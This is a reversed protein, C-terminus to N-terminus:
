IIFTEKQKTPITIVFKSGEDVVGEAVITGGHREVIKRCIALGMGSGEYEDRGHLRHFIQFIKEKFKKEFGIGNDTITIIHSEKDIERSDIKVVPKRDQKKFKLANGILNQFLQRMQLDDAEIVPLSAVEVHGQTDELRAGLDSLVEHIIQHLDVKKFPQAKTTVRSFKLLANVLNQMRDAAGIMYGLYDKGKDPLLNMCTTQLRDGFAQIKRLPEQLDHSAVYAFDQLDQNSKQLKATFKKLLEKEKKRLEREKEAKEKAIRANELEREAISLKQQLEKRERYLVIMRFTFVILTLVLVIIVIISIMAWNGSHIGTESNDQSFGMQLLLLVIFSIYINKIMQILSGTIIYVYPSNGIGIFDM